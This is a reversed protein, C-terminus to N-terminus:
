NNAKGIHHVHNPHLLNLKSQIEHTTSRQTQKVHEIHKSARSTIEQTTNSPTGKHKHIKKPHGKNSQQFLSVFSVFKNHCEEIQIEM